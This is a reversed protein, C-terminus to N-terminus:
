RTGARAQEVDDRVHRTEINKRAVRVREHGHPHTLALDAPLQAVKGREDITRRAFNFVRRADM